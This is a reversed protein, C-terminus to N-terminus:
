NRPANWLLEITLGGHPDTDLYAFRGKSGHSDWGGTQSAPAGKSGLLRVAEDMDQVEFALHHLGEGHAALYEDYVSPGVIPQIWEYAVDPWHWWGLFMEFRGPTGRYVRDISINHDVPMGGFGLNQYFEAVKKIDRVLIAYQVIKNFPYDNEKEPASSTSPTDPNFFLEFTIGGGRQATDLYAFRGTGNKGQWMGSQIVTVGRAKFYEIEYDLRDSSPVSFALHHIGDGHESLFENFVSKGELPQIWEIGTDGISAFTLKLSVATRKGRCSLTPFTRIAERRINRLGLKEWYAVVSDSDRVVWGVHNVHRYISPDVTPKAVETGPLPHAFVALLTAMALTAYLNRMRAELPLAVTTRATEHVSEM